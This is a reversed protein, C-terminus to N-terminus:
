AESSVIIWFYLIGAGNDQSKIQLTGLKIYLLNSTCSKKSHIEYSNSRVSMEPTFLADLDSDIKNLVVAVAESLM